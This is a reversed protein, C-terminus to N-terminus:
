ENVIQKWRTILMNLYDISKLSKGYLGLAWGDNLEVLSTQGTNLVGLDISCTLNKNYEKTLIDICNNLITIDPTPADDEGDVDYRENGICKGNCIYYRYESLFKIPESIWVENDKSLSNIINYQERDHDSLLKIDINMDYVVGTWLKTRVPKVFCVNNIDGLTGRKVNRHFYSKLSMPYCNWAPETINSIDFVKRVFEVSGVPIYVGDIFGIKYQELDSIDVSHYRIDNM